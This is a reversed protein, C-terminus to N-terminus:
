AVHYTNIEGRSYHFNNVESIAAAVEEGNPSITLEHVPGITAFSALPESQTTSFLWLQDFLNEEGNLGIAFREGNDSIELDLVYNQNQLTNAGQMEYSMLLNNNSLDWTAVGIFDFDGSITSSYVAVLKDGSPTLEVHTIPNQNPLSIDNSRVYNNGQKEYVAINNNNLSLAVISGDSSIDMYGMYYNPYHFTGGPNIVTGSVLDVFYTKRFISTAEFVVTLGDGSFAIGHRDFGAGWMSSVESSSFSFENISNGAADFIEIELGGGFSPAYYTIIRNGDDSVFVGYNYCLNGGGICSPLVTKEWLPSSSQSSYVRLTNVHQSNISMGEISAHIDANKASAVRLHSTTTNPPHSYTIPTPPDMDITDFLASELSYGGYHTFVKLGNDGMSVLNATWSGDSPYHWRLGETTSVRGRDDDSITSSGVANVAVVAYYSNQSIALHPDKWFLRPADVEGVLEDSTTVGPGASKYIEYRTAGSVANWSVTVQEEGDSAIVNQDIGPAFRSARGVNVHSGAYTITGSTGSLVFPSQTPEEVFNDFLVGLTIFSFLFTVAVIFIVEQFNLNRNLNINGFGGM